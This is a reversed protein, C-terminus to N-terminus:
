MYIHFKNCDEIGLWGFVSLHNHHKKKKNKQFLYIKSNNYSLKNLQKATDVITKWYKKKKGRISLMELHLNLATTRSLLSPLTSHTLFPTVQFQNIALDQPIDEHFNVISHSAIFREWTTVLATRTSTRAESFRISIIKELGCRSDENWREHKRIFKM